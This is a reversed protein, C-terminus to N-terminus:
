YDKTLSPLLKGDWHIITADLEPEKFREKLDEATKKWINECYRHDTKVLNKIDLEFAKAAAILIHVADRNM